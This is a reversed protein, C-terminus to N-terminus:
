LTGSISIAARTGLPLPHPDVEIVDGRLPLRYTALRETFPAPACGDELQYQYGHWPCVICGDIIRGEGLPGHQHACLNTLAGFRDGDRFVAIREGGPAAIIRARRDPILHAPGMRLGAKATRRMVVTLQGYGGGDM